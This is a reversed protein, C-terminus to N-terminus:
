VRGSKLEVQSTESVFCVRSAGQYGQCRRFVGLVVGLHVGIGCLASVNLRFTPSHLGRVVPRRV